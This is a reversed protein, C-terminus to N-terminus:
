LGLLGGLFAQLKDDSHNEIVNRILKLFRMTLGHNLIESRLEEGAKHANSINLIEKELTKM